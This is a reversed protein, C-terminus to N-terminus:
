SLQFEASQLIDNFLANLRYRVISGNSTSIYNNWLNTWYSDPNGDTLNQKLAYTKNNGAGFPLPDLILKSVVENPDAPTTIIGSNEVFDLADLQLTLAGNNVPFGQVLFAIVQMRNVLTTASLWNRNFYPAQHYAPYGAVEPPHFLDMDLTSTLYDIVSLAAHHTDWDNTDGIDIDYYRFVGVLFEIPSKVIAARSDNSLVADDADFFHESKLLQKIVPLINFNSNQLTTALPVIIDNEISSDIEYYMLFRYLKRVINLATAQQAFIMNVFSSLESEIDQITNNGSSIVTNQFAASFTKPLSDHWPIVINSRYLGTSADTEVSYGAPIQSDPLFGFPVYGTLVRAAAKVDDETYTTYNGNGIQPGKGITFIEFFERAFNENPSTSTNTWGDLFVSMAYDRCMKLALEKMNGYAYQRFLANQHFLPFGYATKVQDNSYITHLFLVMKEKAPASSEIMEKIWWNRTYQRGLAANLGLPALEQRFAFTSLTAPDIPPSPTVATQAYIADIAQGASLGILADIESKKPSLTARSLLHTVQSRSLNGSYPTLSPM